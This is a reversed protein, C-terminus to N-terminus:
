NLNGTHYLGDPYITVPSIRRSVLDIKNIIDVWKDINKAEASPLPNILLVTFLVGCVIAKIM